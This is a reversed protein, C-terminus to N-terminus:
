PQPPVPCSPSLPPLANLAALHQEGLVIEPRARRLRALAGSVEAEGGHRLLWAVVAAASRSYGLACCVLTKGAKQRLAEIADAAQTLQGPSPPLLDLWPSHHYHWDGRPAPLEACLDMLGRFEGRTMDAATPMRGLWLDPTIPSPDPRHRTWWRSNLRAVLLYPAALWSVALSHRGPHAPATTDPLPLASRGKQWGAAELGGYCAAVLLLAVSGWALWLATGGLHYALAALLLAGLGYALALWRARASPAQWATIPSPGRDPWLWLCFFGLLAGTPIDIFHHQYTTLVSVGILAFWLHLPGQWHQQTPATLLAHHYRVWLIVLLAIHLSPAQNYPLDFGALADFLLQSPGEAPPRSFGYRLPFLLFCSVAVCQATFLRLGLRDTERPSRCTLFALGYLLDISWYPLITWPLFPIEREWAFALTHSAGHDAAWHNAFGYSLFFFPGLGLLWCLGRQWPTNLSLRPM